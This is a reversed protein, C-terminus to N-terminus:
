HFSIMPQYSQVFPRLILFKDLRIPPLRLFLEKRLPGAVSAKLEGGGGRPKTAMPVKKRANFFIEKKRLLVGM